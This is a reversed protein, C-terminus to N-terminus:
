RMARALQTHHPHANPSMQRKASRHLRIHKGGGAEVCGVDVLASQPLAHVVVAQIADPLDRALQQHDPAPLVWVNGALSPSQDVVCETIGSRVKLPMLEVCCVGKKAVFTGAVIRSRDPDTVVHRQLQEGAFQSFAMPARNGGGDSSCLLAAATNRKESAQGERGARVNANPRGLPKWYRGITAPERPSTCSWTRTPVFEVVM